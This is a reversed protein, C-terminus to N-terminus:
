ADDEEQNRIMAIEEIMAMIDAAPFWLAGRGANETGRECKEYLEGLRKESLRM